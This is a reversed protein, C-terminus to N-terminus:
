KIGFLRCIHRNYLNEFVCAEVIVRNKVLHYLFEEKREAALKYAVHILQRLSPNYTKRGPVHTLAETFSSSEWSNIENASPLSQPVIDVVDRYPACLEERRLLAESALDRVLNLADGGSAALGAVEELWTTGATKVHIGASHKRILEGIHSYISFKDSGSHISLKLERPLGFESAAMSTVILDAEFEAAFVLPDGTYDVGKNFRGTFKPAIAQVPINEMALMMLIFFLDAPEQAESVEDMSIEVIFNGKGKAKEIKRYIEGAKIAALLYKGAAEELYSQSIDATKTRDGTNLSGSYKKAATLFKEVSDNDATKGIFSAVDITFWDSAPIFRDVNEFSIHDADVFYPTKFSAQNVANDAEKRVDEPETGVILHERNSKNWVPVLEIGKLQAKSVARLQANGELGFRDGIGFSYKGPNM